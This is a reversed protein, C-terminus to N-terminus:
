FFRQKGKLLGASVDSAAPLAPAAQLITEIGFSQDENIFGPDLGIHRWEIAPSFFSLAQTAKGRVAM